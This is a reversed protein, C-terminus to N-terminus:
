ALVETTLDFEIALAACAARFKPLFDEDSTVRRFPGDITMATNDHVAQIRVVLEHDHVGSRNVAAAIQNTTSSLSQGELGPRYAVDPILQGAACKRGHEGRYACIVDGQDINISPGGQRIVGGVAMDFTEQKSFIKRTQEM